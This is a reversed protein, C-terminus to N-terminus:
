YHNLKNIIHSVETDTLIQSLPISLVQQQLQETIPLLFNNFEPYCIQKHPAIPYHILTQIRNKELYNQLDDRNKTKIVFLHWVHARSDQPYSPLEIKVNKIERCYRMAIKQRTENETDLYKLKINLVCAQMEDLRSNIGKYSNHYKKNSGYNALTRITKALVDDNTTVAGADGLAGLNKGPYFSFAAADGLNGTKLNRYMAGISQANDEIIKLNYKKALALIHESFSAQGYLHVLLIAKTKTTIKEEIKSIDINYNELTPEVFIPKLNSDTISLITAIYTHAPVIIEDNPQFVGLQIYAKFILTLADLGNAVGIANKSKIYNSLNTEFLKVENGLVYWGSRFTELLKQEIQAQHLLNIKQLDLFPIM